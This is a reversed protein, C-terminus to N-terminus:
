YDQTHDRADMDDLWSSEGWPSQVWDAAELDMGTDPSPTVEEQHDDKEEIMDELRAKGKEITKRLAKQKRTDIEAKHRSTCRSSNATHGGRCNACQVSIHVFIKGVGKNCGTVGCRHEEFKHPGACIVCRPTRDGCKGMREHDIGCCTM